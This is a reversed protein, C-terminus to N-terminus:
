ATPNWSSMAVAKWIWSLGMLTLFAAALRGEIPEIWAVLRIWRDRPRVIEAVSLGFVGWTLLYLLSAFPQNLLAAIPQLDSMLAFTTTAGCMPCPQGSLKLFSCTNLGLQMHTSHGAIAPELWVSTALVAGTFLALAVSSVLSITRGQLRGELGDQPLDASM